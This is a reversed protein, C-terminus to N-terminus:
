EAGEDGALKANLDAAASKKPTIDIADSGDAEGDSMTTGTIQSYVAARLKREAKGLIADAGMGGNVRIPIERELSDAKGHYKWTAKAPVTAGRDGAGKPVGFSLRLDTLGPLERLLRTFGEKTVYCRGSIINWENGVPHLGRLSAEIFCDRVIREDYGDPKDTRFGLSTNQLPMISRMVEQDILKKMRGVGEAMRFGKRIAGLAELATLNCSSVVAELETCIKEEKNETV